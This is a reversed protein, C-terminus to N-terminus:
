RSSSPTVIVLAVSAGNVGLLVLTTTVPCILTSFRGSTLAV